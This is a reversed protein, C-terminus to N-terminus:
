PMREFSWAYWVMKRHQDLYVIRAEHRGPMWPRPPTYVIEADRSAEDHTFRTAPTDTVDEGDIYIRPTGRAYRAAPKSWALTARVRATPSVRAGHAPEVSTFEAPRVRPSPRSPDRPPAADIPFPASVRQELPIEDDGSYANRVTDYKDIVGYWVVRYTGPEIKRETRRSSVVADVGSAATIPYVHTGGAPVVVPASACANMEIVWNSVWKGAVLQQLGVAIAGNCNLLYVPRDAPAHFTSVIKVEPGFPGEELAYRARDTRVPGPPGPPVQQPATETRVQPPPPPTAQPKTCSALVLLSVAISRM